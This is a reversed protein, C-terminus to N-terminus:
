SIKTKVLEDPTSTDNFLYFVLVFLVKREREKYQM